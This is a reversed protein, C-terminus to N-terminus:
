GEARITKSAPDCCACSRSFRLNLVHAGIILSAGLGAAIPEVSIAGWGIHRRLLLCLFGCAFLALCSARGHKKRYAPVLAIVGLTASGLLFLPEVTESLNVLSSLGALSLLIPGAVCHVFCLSALLMGRRDASSTHSQSKKM